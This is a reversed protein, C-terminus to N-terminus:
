KISHEQCSANPKLFFESFISFIFSNNILYQKIQVVTVTKTIQLVRVTKSNDKDFNM